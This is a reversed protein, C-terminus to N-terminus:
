LESRALIAAANGGLIKKKDDDSIQAGLVRGLQQAQNLFYVDSGFLVKEVGVQEVFREIRGYRSKSMALDLYINEHERAASVNPAEDEAGSHALLLAADPYKQALECIRDIESSSNGWTHFLVPLKRENAIAYALGYREDDYKFGNSNHMKFGVFGKEIWREASTKVSEATEPWFSAYGLIRDPYAQIAEFLKENGRETDATMCAMSSHITKDVGLRDMVRIASEVSIDPIDFSIIGLHGHVDIITVDDLTEGNRGRDLLSSM